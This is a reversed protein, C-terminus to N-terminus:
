SYNLIDVQDKKEKGLEMHSVLLVKKGEQIRHASDIFGILSDLGGSFLSVEEYDTIDYSSINLPHYEYEASHVFEFRWSDGTLFSIAREFLTKGSNMEELNIVPINIMKITRHWGDISYKARNIARDVNYVLMSLVLFDFAVSSTDKSFSWLEKIDFKLGVTRYQGDFGIFALSFDGIHEKSSSSKYIISVVTEM